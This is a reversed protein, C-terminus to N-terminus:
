KNLESAGPSLLNKGNETPCLALDLANKVAPLNGAGKRDGLAREPDPVAEIPEVGGAVGDNGIELLDRPIRPLEVIRRLRHHLIYRLCYLEARPNVQDM